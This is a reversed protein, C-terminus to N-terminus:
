LYSTAVARMLRELEAGFDRRFFALDPSKIAAATAPSPQTAHYVGIILTTADHLLAVWSQASLAPCCRALERAALEYFELTRHKFARVTEESLNQELVAPISAALSCLLPRQSFSKALLKVTADLSSPKLKPQFDNWWAEAEDWFLALFVAERSEFYRYVNAKAVGASRALENLGLERLDVGSALAARATKLLHVRRLEKQEPNRARIFRKPM